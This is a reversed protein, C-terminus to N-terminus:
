TNKENKPRVTAGWKLLMEKSEHLKVQWKCFSKRASSQKQPYVV